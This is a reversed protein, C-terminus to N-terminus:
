REFSKIDPVLYHRGVDEFLEYLTDPMWPVGAILELLKQREISFSGNDQDVCLDLLANVVAPQRAFWEVAEDKQRDSGLRARRLAQLWANLNQAELRKMLDDLGTSDAALNWGLSPDLADGHGQRLADYFAESRSGFIAELAGAHIAQSAVEPEDFFRSIAGTESELTDRALSALTSLFLLQYGESSERMRLAPREVIFPVVLDFEQHVEYENTADIFVAPEELRAAAARRRRAEL